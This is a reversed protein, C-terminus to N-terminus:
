KVVTKSFEGRNIRHAAKKLVLLRQRKEEDLLEADNAGIKNVLRLMGERKPPKKLTSQPVPIVALSHNGKRGLSGDILGSSM